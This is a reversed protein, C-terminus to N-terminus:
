QDAWSDVCMATFSVDPALEATSNLLAVAEAQLWRIGPIIQLRTLLSEETAIM